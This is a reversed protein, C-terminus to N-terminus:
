RSWAPLSRSCPTPERPNGAAAGAPSSMTAGTMVGIRAERADDLRTIVLEERGCGALTALLLGAMSGAALWRSARM